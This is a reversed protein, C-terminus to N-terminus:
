GADSQSKGPGQTSPGTSTKRPTRRRGTRAATSRPQTPQGTAPATCTEVMGRQGLLAGAVIAVCGIWNVTTLRDGVLFGALASWGPELAYILTATTASVRQQARNMLVFCLATAFLGIAAAATWASAPASSPREEFLVSLVVSLVAAVLVQVTALAYGDTQPAFRAVSVIHAATAAACALVLIEGHGVQVDLGAGLSLLMLGVTSAGAGGIAWGTPRQRLLLVTFVAVFPVYFATIFGVKSVSVYLLGTTQLAWAAFAFLGTVAGAILHRAGLRRVRTGFLAVLVAAGITFRMAMFTFPDFFRLAHQILPLTGGFLAAVLLLQLCAVTPPPSPRRALGTMSM